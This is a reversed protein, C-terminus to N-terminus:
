GLDERQKVTGLRLLCVRSIVQVRTTFDRRGSTLFGLVVPRGSAAARPPVQGAASLPGRGEVRANGKLETGKDQKTQTKMGSVVM